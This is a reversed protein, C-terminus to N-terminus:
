NNVNLERWRLEKRIEKKVLDSFFKQYSADICYNRFEIKCGGSIYRDIIYEIYIKKDFISKLKSLLSAKDKELLEFATTCLIFEVDSKNKLNECIFNMTNEIETFSFEKELLNLLFDKTSPSISFCSLMLDLKKGISNLLGMKYWLIKESKIFSKVKLLDIILLSLEEGSSKELFNLVESSVFKNYVEQNYLM